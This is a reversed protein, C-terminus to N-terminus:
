TDKGNLDGAAREISEEFSDGLRDLVVIVTHALVAATSLTDNLRERAFNAEIQRPTTEESQLRALEREMRDIRRDADDHCLSM